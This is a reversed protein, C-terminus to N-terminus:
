IMGALTALIEPRGGYLRRAVRMMEFVQQSDFTSWANTTRLSCRRWNTPWSLSISEKADIPSRGASGPCPCGNGEQQNLSAPPRFDAKFHAFLTAAVGNRQSLVVDRNL